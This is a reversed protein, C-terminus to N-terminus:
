WVSERAMSVLPWIDTKATATLQALIGTEVALLMASSSTALIVAQNDKM